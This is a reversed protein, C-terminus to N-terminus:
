EENLDYRTGRVKTIIGKVDVLTMLRSILFSYNRLFYTVIILPFLAQWSEDLKNAIAVLCLYACRDATMRRETPQYVKNVKEGMKTTFAERVIDSFVPGPCLMTISIKNSRIENRLSEFYGHLAHKAGTYSGCDPAGIIGAISSTIALGGVNGTKSFYRVAIRNLNILSFVNLDFMSKDVELEISQWRARQSRGANSILLDLKGFHDVVKKFKSEHVAYDLMDFDLVLIDKDKLKRNLALCEQKVRELEDKRRASIVLRANYRALKKALAEGIGSSAGTVWVVKRSFESGPSKGFHVALFTIVDCDAICAILFWILIYLCYLAGVVSFIDM